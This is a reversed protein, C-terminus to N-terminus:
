APVRRRGRRRGRRARGQDGGARRGGGRSQTQPDLTRVFRVAPHLEFADSPTSLRRPTDPNFALPPRPSVFAPFFLGDELFPTCWASSAPTHPGTHSLVRRLKERTLKAAEVRKATKERAKRETALARNVRNLEYTKGRLEDKALKVAALVEGRQAAKHAKAVNRVEHQAAHADLADRKKTTFQPANTETRSFTPASNLPTLLPTSLRRPTDPNFGLSPRASLSAPL